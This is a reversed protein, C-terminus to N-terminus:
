ACLFVVSLCRECVCWACCVAGGGVLLLLPECLACLTRRSLLLALSPRPDAVLFDRDFIEMGMALELATKTHAPQARLESLDQATVLHIFERTRQM